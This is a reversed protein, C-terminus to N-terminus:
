SVFVTFPCQKGVISSSAEEILPTFIHIGRAGRVKHIWRWGPLARERSFAWLMRSGSSIGGLGACAQMIAMMSSLVISAGKSKTSSELIHMFPFTAQSKLIATFDGATFLFAILMAFGLIGNIAIAFLMSHPVVVSSNAVEEAM